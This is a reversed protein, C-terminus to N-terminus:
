SPLATDIRALTLPPLAQLTNDNTVIPEVTLMLFNLLSPDLMLTLSWIQPPELNDMKLSTDKPLERETRLVARKPPDSEVSDNTLADDENLTLAMILHPEDTETPPRLRFAMAPALTETMSSNRIPLLTDILLKVRMPLAIDNNLKAHTLLVTDIREDTLAPLAIDKHV